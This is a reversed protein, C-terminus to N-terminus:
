REELLTWVQWRKRRASSFPWYAVAARGRSWARGAAAGNPFFCRAPRQTLNGNGMGRKICLVALQRNLRRQRGRPLCHHPGRYSNPLRWAHYTQGPRGYRGRHDTFRFYARGHRWALEQATATGDGAKRDSAAPGLAINPRAQVGARREYYQQTRRAVGTVATITERAIPPAYEREGTRSSHFASYFHAKLDGIRGLFIDLPVAVPRGTLRELGLAAAVKAQGQLWIREKDATWFLGEGEALLRALHRRSCFRLPSTRGSFAKYAEARKVWGRGDQDLQRLLFWLRGSAARGERLVALALTPLLAIYTEPEEQTPLTVATPPDAEEDREPQGRQREAAQSTRRMAASAPASEWGLHPPLEQYIEALTPPETKCPLPSIEPRGAKNHRTRLELLRQNAAVLDASPLSKNAM